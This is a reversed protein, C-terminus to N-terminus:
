SNLFGVKKMEKLIEYFNAICNMINFIAAIGAIITM